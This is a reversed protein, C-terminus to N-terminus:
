FYIFLASNFPDWQYRHWYQLFLENYHFCLFFLKFSLFKTYLAICNNLDISPMKQMEKAVVEVTPHGVYEAAYGWKKYWEPEFPLICAMCDVYKKITLVRKEKWAWITPSIYYMVKFGQQKAWKAMRLNFGPYDVLVVVDPQFALIHEKCRAFNKLITRMNALVEAFGMFALERIHKHILVGAEQMQDGGWGQLECTRDLAKLEKLMNAAHMDGSAEGAIVFYKM